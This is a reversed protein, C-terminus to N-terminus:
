KGHNRRLWREQNFVQVFVHHERLIQIIEEFDEPAVCDLYTQAAHEDPSEGLLKVQFSGPWMGKPYYFSLTHVKEYKIESKIRPFIANQLIISTETLTIHNLYGSASITVSITSLILFIFFNIKRSDQLNAYLLVIIIGAILVIISIVILIAISSKTLPRKFTKIEQM